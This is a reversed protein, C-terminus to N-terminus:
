CLFIAEDLLKYKSGGFEEAADQWTKDVWPITLFGISMVASEESTLYKVSFAFFTDVTIAGESDLFNTTELETSIVSIDSTGILLLSSLWRIESCRSCLLICPLAM